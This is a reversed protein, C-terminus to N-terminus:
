RVLAELDNAKVDELSSVVLDANGLQEKLVYPTLVACSKMEANKAAEVGVPADEIVVSKAAEVGLKEAAALFVEPNPKHTSVDEETVIADFLDFIGATTLRSKVLATTASSGVAIPINRERLDKLLDVVGPKPEIHAFLDLKVKDTADQFDLADLGLGYDKNLMEVQHALTRGVYRHLEEDAVHVGYNALVENYAQWNLAVSDILVGDMDFIVAIDSPTETM